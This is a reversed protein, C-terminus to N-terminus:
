LEGDGENSGPLRRHDAGGVYGGEELHDFVDKIMAQVREGQTPLGPLNNYNNASKTGQRSEIVAKPTAMASGWLQRVQPM